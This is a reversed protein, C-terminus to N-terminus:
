WPRNIMTSPSFDDLESFSFNLMHSFLDHRLEESFGVAAKAAFYQASVSAVIGLLALLLLISGNKLISSVSGLVIARDIIRAIVIPVLLEFVAELAKLLPAFICEKKYKRLYKILKKM